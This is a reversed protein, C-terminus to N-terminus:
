NPVLRYYKAGGLAAPAPDSYGAEGDEWDTSSGESPVSPTVRYWTDLDLSTEIFYSAGITSDWSLFNEGGIRSISLAPIVATTNSIVSWGVDQAAALDVNTIDFRRLGPSIFNATPEMLLDQLVGAGVTGILNPNGLPFIFSQYVGDKWHRDGASHMDLGSLAQGNDEEFAALANAGQFEDDTIFDIWPRGSATTLGLGHAVEHLAISYFDTKSGPAATTHDFHWNVSQTAFSASGGITNM